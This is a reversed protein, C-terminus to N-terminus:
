GVIEYLKENFKVEEVASAMDPDVYKNPGYYVYSLPISEKLEGGCGYFLCVSMILAVFVTAIRKKM